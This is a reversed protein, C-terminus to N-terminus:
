LGLEYDANLDIEYNQTTALNIITSDIESEPLLKEIYLNVIRNECNRIFRSFMGLYSTKIRETMTDVIEKDYKHSLNNRDTLAEKWLQENEILGYQYSSKLITLPSGSVAENVGEYELITKALKWSLEFTKEFHNLLGTLMLDREDVNYKNFDFRCYKNLSNLASVFNDYKKM